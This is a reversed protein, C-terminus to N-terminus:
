RMKFCLREPRLRHVSGKNPRLRCDERQFGVCGLRESCRKDMSLTMVDINEGVEVDLSGGEVTVTGPASGKYFGLFVAICGSSAIEEALFGHGSSKTFKNLVAVAKEIRAQMDEAAAQRIGMPRALVSVLCAARM